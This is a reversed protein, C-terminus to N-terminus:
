YLSGKRCFRIYDEAALKLRNLHRSVVEDVTLKEEKGEGRSIVFELKAMLEVGPAGDASASSMPYLPHFPVSSIQTPLSM